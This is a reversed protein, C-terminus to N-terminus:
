GIRCRRSEGEVFDVYRFRCFWSQVEARGPLNGGIDYLWASVEVSVEDLHQRTGLNHTM